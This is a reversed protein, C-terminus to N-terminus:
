KNQAKIVKEYYVEGNKLTIAVVYVGPVLNSVDIGEEMYGQQRVVVAGNGSLLQISKINESAGSVYMRHRLPRPYVTYGEKGVADDIGTAGQLHLAYPAAFTGTQQGEFSITENIDYEKGTIAEYAKFTITKDDGVTGHIALFLKGDVYKGVGRCEKGIFAGVAFTGEIVPSDMAYVQAILTTNDPYQHTDYSWPAAGTIVAAQRSYNAVPFVRQVPYNFTTANAAYYLYGEGPRLETLTGVWRGGTYTAFDDMCKIVDNESPTIGALASTLDNGSVPVYGIWNWGKRLNMTTTEPKSGHGSWTHDSNETVKLKYSETPSITTLGGTLGYVPDNILENTQGVFM